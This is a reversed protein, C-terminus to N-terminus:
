PVVKKTIDVATDTLEGKAKEPVCKAAGFGLTGAYTERDVEETGYHVGVTPLNDSALNVPAASKVRGPGNRDVIKEVIVSATEGTPKAVDTNTGVKILGTNASSRAKDMAVPVELTLDTPTKDGKNHGKEASVLPGGTPDAGAEKVVVDPIKVHVAHDMDDSVGVTPVTLIALTWKNM